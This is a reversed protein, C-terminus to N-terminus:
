MSDSLKPWGPCTIRGRLSRSSWKPWIEAMYQMVGENFLAILRDDSVVDVESTTDEAGNLNVTDDIIPATQLPDEGIAALYARYTLDATGTENHFALTIHMEVSEISAADSVESTLDISQSPTQLEFSGLDGPIVPDDGYRISRQSADLYDLLDFSLTVKTDGTTTTNDLINSGCGWVVPLIMTMMLIGLRKMM